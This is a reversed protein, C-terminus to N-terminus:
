YEWLSSSFSASMQTLINETYQAVSGSYNSWNYITGNTINSSLLDMEQNHADSGSYSGTYSAMDPESITYFKNEFLVLKGDCFFSRNYSTSDSGSGAFQLNVLEQNPATGVNGVTGEGMSSSVYVDGVV